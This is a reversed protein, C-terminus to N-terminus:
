EAEHQPELKRYLPEERVDGNVEFLQNFGVPMVKLRTAEFGSAELDELAAAAYMRWRDRGAEFLADWSLAGNDDAWCAHFAQAMIEVRPDRPTSAATM